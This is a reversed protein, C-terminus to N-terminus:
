APLDAGAGFSRRRDPLARRRCERRPGARLRKRGQVSGGGYGTGMGGGGGQGNSALAVNPSKTVGINPLKPNDPLDINKQVDIAAPILCSPSIWVPTMPPTIPDKM